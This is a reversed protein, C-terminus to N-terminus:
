MISSATAATFATINMVTNKQTLVRVGDQGLALATDSVTMQWNKPEAADSRWVRAFLMVGVVRFRLMYIVATQAKFPVSRLTVSEGHVRKLISVHAGDLLLKYWNNDDSWRLVVGLNTGGAFDSVSGALLAESNTSSPGLLANFTGQGNAIQGMNANVTFINGATSADGNWIRGDSATGWLRQNQRQFTDQALLNTPQQVPM